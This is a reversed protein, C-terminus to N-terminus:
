TEQESQDNSRRQIFICDASHSHGINFTFVTVPINSNRLHRRAAKVWHKMVNNRGNNSVAGRAFRETYPSLRMEMCHITGSSLDLDMKMLRDMLMGHGVSLVLIMGYIVIKRMCHRIECISQYNTRRALIQWSSIVQWFVPRSNSLRHYLRPMYLGLPVNLQAYSRPCTSKLVRHRQFLRM